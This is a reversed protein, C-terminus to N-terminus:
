KGNLISKIIACIKQTGDPSSASMAAVYNSRKLYLDTISATLSAPTMDSERLVKIAGSQSYYEANQVQDGRSAKELPVALTPIKLAICESLAGAGARTVMLDCTAYLTPMDTEFEIPCYGSQKTGGTKNKGTMHIVDFRKLLEPLAKVVCDNLAAAGSSGGVVAVIPKGGSLGYRLRNPKGCFLKRSLPSGVHVGNKLKEACPKFSCLVKESYRAAIKTTIGPSFDSEHSIVPVSKAALVVPLAAYGGKSFILNPKIENLAKKASKVCSLLKFPVAINKIVADRRLKVTKITYFPIGRASVLSKEMGDGGIYVCNCYPKLEDILALNPMVHGATGGGAFVITKM